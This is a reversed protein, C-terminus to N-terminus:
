NIKKITLTRKPKCGNSITPMFNISEELQGESVEDLIIKQFKELNISGNLRKFCHQIREKNINLNLAKAANELSDYTIYSNNQENEKLLNFVSIIKEEKNFDKSSVM